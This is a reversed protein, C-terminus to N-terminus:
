YVKRSTEATASCFRIWILVFLDFLGAAAEELILHTQFTARTELMLHTQVVPQFVNMIFPHFDDHINFM